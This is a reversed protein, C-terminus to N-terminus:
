GKKQSELLSIDQGIRKAGELEDTLILSSPRRRTQDFGKQDREREQRKKRRKKLVKTKKSRHTAPSTNGGGKKGGSGSWALRNDTSACPQRAPGKGCRKREDSEVRGKGLVVGGRCQVQQGERETYLRWNRQKCSRQMLARLLLSREV